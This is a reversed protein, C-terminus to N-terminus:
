EIQGEQLQASFYIDTAASTIPDLTITVVEDFGDDSISGLNAGGSTTGAFITGSGGEVSGATFIIRYGYTTGTNVENKIGTFNTWSGAGIKYQLIVNTVETGLPDTIVPPNWRVIKPIEAQEPPVRQISDQFVELNTLISVDFSPDFFNVKILEVASLKGIQPFYKISNLRYVANGLRKDNIKIVDNFSVSNVDAATLAFDGELLYASGLIASELDAKYYVNYLTMNTDWTQQINNLNLDGDATYTAGASFAGGTNFHLILNNSSDVNLNRKVNYGTWRTIGAISADKGDATRGYKLGASSVDVATIFMMRPTWDTKFTWDNNNVQACELILNASLDRAAPYRYNMRLMPTPACATKVTRETNTFESDNVALVSAYGVSYKENWDSLYADQNDGHELIITKELINKLPKIRVSNIDIKTSWDWVTSEQAAGLRYFDNYTQIKLNTPRVPDAQVYANFLTFVDKIFDRQRYRRPLIDNIGINISSDLWNDVHTIFVYSNPGQILRGDGQAIEEFGITVRSREKATFTATGSITGTANASIDVIAVKDILVNGDAPNFYNIFLKLKSDNTASFNKTWASIDMTYTGFSPLDLSNLGSGAPGSQNYESASVPFGRRLDYGQTVTNGNVSLHYLAYGWVRNEPQVEGTFPDQFISTLRSVPNDTANPVVYPDGLYYKAYLKPVTLDRWFGNYPIYVQRLEKEIDESMEYTFGNTSFITDFIQKAAVGPVLPYDDMPVNPYYNPFGTNVEKFPKYVNGSHGIFGLIKGTGTASPEHNLYYRSLSVDIVFPSPDTIQLDFTPDINGKILKDGLLSFLTTENSYLIVEYVFPTIGVVELSGSLITLGDEVLEAPQRKGVDYGSIGNVNFLAKFIKETQETQLITIPKSFSSSRQGYNRIDRLSYSMQIPGIDTSDVRMKQTGIYLQVRPEAAM